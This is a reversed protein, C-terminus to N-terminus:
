RSFKVKQPVIGNQQLVAWEKIFADAIGMFDEGNEKLLLSVAIAAIVAKPTKSYVKGLARSYENEIKNIM